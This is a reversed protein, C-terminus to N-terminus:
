AHSSRVSPATELLDYSGFLKLSETCNKLEALAKQTTPSGAASELDIFFVYEGILRKTPRSEIRSLNIEYKAFIQLPKLLAGPANVPLSFALSTYRGHSSPERNLIWFRTQNDTHDNIGHVLIPIHYLDAARESAIAAAGEDGELYEVAHATSSTPVLKAWPVSSELWQQCQSLAQPHSYITQIRSLNSATTLLAHTIPLLLASQIQLCDLQWLTDLTVTVGGEISNEVPVIATTTPQQAAAWLTQPISAYPQLAVAAETQGSLWSQYALAAAESYTGQPGLYAISITM